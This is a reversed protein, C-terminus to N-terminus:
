FCDFLQFFSIFFLCFIFSFCFFFFIMFFIGRQLTRYLVDVRHLKMILPAFMLTSSLDVAWVRLMCHTNSNSGCFCLITFNMLIAGVLFIYIFILQSRKLVKEHSYKNTLYLIVICIFMGFASMFIIGYSINSGNYIFPCEIVINTPETSPNQVCNNTSNGNSANYKLQYSVFREQSKIDCSSVM